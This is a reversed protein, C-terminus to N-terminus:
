VSKEYINGVVKYKVTNGNVDRGFGLEGGRRQENWYFGVRHSLKKDDNEEKYEGYKIDTKNGSWESHVIDGEYIPDGDKDLLGTYRMLVFDGLDKGKEHEAWLYGSLMMVPM